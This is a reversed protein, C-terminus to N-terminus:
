DFIKVLYQNIDRQDLAYYYTKENYIRTALEVGVFRWHWPEFIYFSNEKPYSVIFGYRHANEKLWTYATTKDFGTLLSGIKPTTLDITTGLQHESYGQDASFKNATGAGYTVKYTSKLSAQEGFSRYASVIKMDMGANTASDMLQKLFPSVNEHIKHVRNIEFIYEPSIDVLKEPIYNENLFYVKSYKKLLETDTKSLKELVSVTGAINQIQDQFFISNQKETHLAVAIANKESAENDLRKQLLTSFNEAIVLDAKLKLNESRMQWFIYADFAITLIIAIISAIKVTQLLTKNKRLYNEM